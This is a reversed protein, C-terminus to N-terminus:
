RDQRCLSGCPYRLRLQVAHAEARPQPPVPRSRSFLRTFYYIKVFHAVTKCSIIKGTSATQHGYVELLAEPDGSALNSNAIDSVFLPKTCHLTGQKKIGRYLTM